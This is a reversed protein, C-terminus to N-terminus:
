ARKLWLDTPWMFVLGGDCVRSTAGLRKARAAMYYDDQQRILFGDAVLQSVLASEDVKLFDALETTTLLNSIENEEQHDAQPLEDSYDGAMALYRQESPSERPQEPAPYNVSSLVSVVPPKALEEPTNSFMAVADDIIKKLKNRTAIFASSDNSRTLLVGMEESDDTGDLTRSAMVINCENSYCRANLKKSFYVSVNPHKSLLYLRSAFNQQRYVLRVHVGQAARECLLTLLREPMSINPCAFTIERNAKRIMLEIVKDLTTDHLFTAM